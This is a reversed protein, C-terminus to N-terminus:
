VGRGIKRSGMVAVNAVPSLQTVERFSNDFTGGTGSMHKKSLVGLFWATTHGTGLFKGALCTAFAALLVLTPGDIASSAIQSEGAPPLFIRGRGQRGGAGTRLNMLSSAFSVSTASLEGVSGGPATAIIPDSVAPSIRKADCQLLTWDSTVAPLLTDVACDLLATALELLLTDLDSQDAIASNTAFNMVNITTQGHIRGVIRGQAGATWPAAM